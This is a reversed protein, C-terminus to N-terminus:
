ALRATPDRRQQTTALHRGLDRRLRRLISLLDPERLAAADRVDPERLRIAAVLHAVDPRPLLDVRVRLRPHRRLLVHVRRDDYGLLARSGAGGGGAGSLRSSPLATIRVCKAPASRRSSAPCCTTSVPHTARRRSWPPTMKTSRRSPSPIACTTKRSPSGASCACLRRLSHHTLTVPSTTSRGAPLALGSRAVPSTSTTAEDTSTSLSLSVGGNGTCPDSSM